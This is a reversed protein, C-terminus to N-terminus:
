ILKKIIKLDINDDIDMSNLKDMKFCFTKKNMFNKNKKFSKTNFIYISGNPAYLQSTNQRNQIGPKINRLKKFFGKKDIKHCWEIPLTKEVSILYDLKKKKFINIAKDIQETKRIPCTPLMVCFENVFKNEKELFKILHMYVDISKIRDGSLNSPRKFPIIIKKDNKYHRIINEDDTSIYIEKIKKSKKAVDVTYDILHKNKIKLFNKNKLGKSNKRAPIICIM